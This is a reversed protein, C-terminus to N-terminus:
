VDNSSQEARMAAPNVVRKVGGATLLVVNFNMLLGVSLNTLRLHTLLQRKHVEAIEAVSKLEVIVQDEILLDMYYCAKLQQGRYVSPVKRGVEWRLSSEHLEHQLCESYVSELLGPGLEEHVRIGCGIIAKTLANLGDPDRLMVM